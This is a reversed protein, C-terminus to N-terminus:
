VVNMISVNGRLSMVGGCKIGNNVETLLTSHSATSNGEWNM